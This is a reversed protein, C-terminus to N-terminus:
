LDVAVMRGLVKNSCHAHIGLLLSSVEGYSEHLESNFQNGYRGIIDRSKDVFEERWLLNLKILAPGWPTASFCHRKRNRSGYCMAVEQRTYRFRSIYSESDCCLTLLTLLMKGSHKPIRDCGQNQTFYPASM